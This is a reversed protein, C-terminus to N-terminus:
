VDEMKMRPEPGLEEKVVDNAPKLRGGLGEFLARRVEAAFGAGFVAVNTEQSTMWSARDGNASGLVSIREDIIVAKVHSKTAKAMEHAGGGPGVAGTYYYIALNANLPVPLRSVRSILRKVCSETSSGGGTTVWQELRMMSRCTVVEVVVGRSIAEFIAEILPESTLNPTQIYVSKEARSISLDLFTNQPTKPFAVAKRPFICSFPNFFFRPNRHHPQPLFLTPLADNGPFVQTSAKDLDADFAGKSPVKRREEDPLTQIDEFSSGKLDGEKSWIKEWFQLFTQVIGGELTICSEGWVEFSINSSPLNLSKRDVILYKGHMVSLPRYFISKVQVDLYNLEEPQPLGLGAWSDPFYIKGEPSSTHFLKQFFSTSSFGIRVRPKVTSCQHRRNLERLADALLQRSESEAWFCTVFIVEHQAQVIQSALLKTTSLGTGVHFKQPVSDTLLEALPLITEQQFDDCVPALASVISSLFDFTLTAEATTLSLGVNELQQNYTSLLYSAIKDDKPSSLPTGVQQTAEVQTRPLVDANGNDSNNSYVSSM